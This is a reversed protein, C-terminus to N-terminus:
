SCHNGKSIHKTAKQSENKKPSRKKQKQDPLNPDLMHLQREVGTEIGLIDLLFM